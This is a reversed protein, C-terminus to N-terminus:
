ERSPPAMLRFPATIAQPQTQGQGEKHGYSRDDPDGKVEAGMEVLRLEEMGETEASSPAM